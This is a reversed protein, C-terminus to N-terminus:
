FSVRLGGTLTIYRPDFEAQTWHYSGEIVLGYRRTIPFDANVGGVLGWDTAADVDPATHRYMGVGGFIGSTGFPESFRYEVLAEVHQVEGEADRRVPQGEFEGTAFPVQTEIRGGRFKVWLGPEVRLAWYLDVASNKLSFDSDLFADEGDAPANEVFRRSGGVLVGVENYQAFAPVAGATLLLVILTLRKMAPVIRSANSDNM